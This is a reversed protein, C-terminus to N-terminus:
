GVICGSGGVCDIGGLSVAAVRAGNDVIRPVFAGAVSGGVLMVLPALACNKDCGALKITVVM